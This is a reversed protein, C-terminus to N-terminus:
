GRGSLNCPTCLTQGCDCLGIAGASVHRMESSGGEKKSALAAQRKAVEAQMFESIAGVMDASVTVKSIGRARLHEGLKPILKETALIRFFGEAQELSIEVTQANAM